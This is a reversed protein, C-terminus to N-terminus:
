LKSEEIESNIRRENYQQFTVGSGILNRSKAIHYAIGLVHAARSGKTVLKPLPKLEQHQNLYAM